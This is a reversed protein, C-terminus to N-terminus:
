WVGHDALFDREDATLDSVIEANGHVTWTNNGTSDTFSTDALDQDEFNVDAVVAGDDYVMFRWMRGPWTSGTGAGSAGVELDAGTANFISTTGAMVVPDGLRVWEAEDPDAPLRPATYFTVIHDGDVDVRLDAMLAILDSSRRPPFSLL